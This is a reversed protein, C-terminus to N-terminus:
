ILFDDGMGVSQQPAVGTGVVGDGDLDAVFVPELEVLDASSHSSSSLYAGTADTQWVTYVDNPGQWLVAFGGEAAEVQLASWGAY